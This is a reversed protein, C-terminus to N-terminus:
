ICSRFEDESISALVPLGLRRVVDSDKKFSDDLYDVVFALGIGGFLGLVIGLVINRLKKPRIPDFPRTAPQIISVNSVAQEDLAASIRSEGLSERYRRYDDAALSVERTLRDFEVQRASLVAYREKYNVLSAKLVELRAAQASFETREKALDLELQRRVDDIGTTVETHTDGEQALTAELQGIQERLEVLPRYDASYRAALDAERLRLDTLRRKYEDAAWNTVGTTRSLEMTETRRQVAEELLAVQAQSAKMRGSVDDMMDEIGRIQALLAETQLEPSSIDYQRRFADLREEAATLKAQLDAVQGEFFLPDAKAAHVEVHRELYLRVLADLAAYALGPGEAEFSATITNSKREVALTLGDMFRTVAKGYGAPLPVLAPGTPGQGQATTPDPGPRPEAEQARPSLPGPEGDPRALFADAGIKAVVLEALQRSGLIALESYVENETDRVLSISPREVSPDVSVNGRGQRILLRAESRYTEPALVNYLAAGAVFVAFFAAVKLKHRFVVDLVDRISNQVVHAAIDIGEKEM